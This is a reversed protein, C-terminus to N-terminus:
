WSRKKLVFINCGRFFAPTIILRIVGRGGWLAWKEREGRGLTTKTSLQPEVTDHPKLILWDSETYNELGCKRENINAKANSQILSSQPSLVTVHFSHLLLFAM